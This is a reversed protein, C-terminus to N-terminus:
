DSQFVGPLERPWGKAAQDLVGNVYAHSQDSGFRNALEISEDLLVQVPLGPDHTLQWAGMLLVVREMVDCQTLPRDMFPALNSALTEHEGIVGVLLEKFLDEDVGSFDQAERFQVLIESAEQGTLQWQYLAQLARRRARKRPEWQGREPM